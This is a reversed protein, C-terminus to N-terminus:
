VAPRKLWIEGAAVAFWFAGTDVVEGNARRGQHLTGYIVGDPDGKDLVKAVDSTLLNMVTFPFIVRERQDHPVAAMAQRLSPVMPSVDGGKELLEGAAHLLEGARRASREGQQAKEVDNGEHGPNMRVRVNEYRWTVAAEISDVPMGKRKDRSVMAPDIGLAAALAAQTPKAIAKM